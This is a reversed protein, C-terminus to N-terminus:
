LLDPNDREADLSLPWDRSRVLGQRLRKLGSRPWGSPENLKLYSDRWFPKLAREMQLLSEFLQVRHSARETEPLSLSTGKKTQQEAAFMHELATVRTYVQTGLSELEEVRATARRAEALEKKLRAVQEQEGALMSELETVRGLQGEPHVMRHASHMARNREVWLEEELPKLRAVAQRYADLQEDNIRRSQDLEISEAVKEISEV